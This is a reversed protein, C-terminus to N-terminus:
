ATVPETAAPLAIVARLGPANDELSLRGGHLRAVADVLSLGLGAGESTRATELRRYRMLATGREAAPIGAGHDAVTLRVEDGARAVGLVIETSATAYKLANDILNSVAQALLERNGAIMAPGRTELRMAIGKDEALPQYMECLDDVFGAADFTEFSERGIGAEARSVELTTAIMRLMREIEASVTTLAEAAGAESGTRTVRDIAVRMRTLPSRLDHALSDTVIRLEEILRDIHDFMGNLSQGLQDLPDDVGRVPLRGRFNGRRVEAAVQSVARVQGKIFRLLVASGLFSLPLAFLLGGILAIALSERLQRRERMVKGVLLASGDPFRRTTVGIQEARSGGIRYLFMESWAEGRDLTPPWDKLNGALKRGSPDILLYAFDGAAADRTRADITRALGAMGGAQRDAQLLAVQDRVLLRLDSLVLRDAAQYIFSFIVITAVFSLTLHLAVFRAGTTQLARPALHRIL